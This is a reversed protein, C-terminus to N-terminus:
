EPSVNFGIEPQSEVSEVAGHKAEYERMVNQLLGIFRKVHGPSMFIRDTVMGTGDAMSVVGFDLMFEEPARHVRVINAYRGKFVDDSVRIQLQRPPQPKQQQETM